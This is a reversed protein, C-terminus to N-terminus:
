VKMGVDGDQKVGVKDKEPQPKKTGPGSVGSGPGNENKSPKVSRWQMVVAAGVYVCSAALAVRFANMVAANYGDLFRPLDDPSALHQISM